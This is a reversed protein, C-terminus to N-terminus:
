MPTDKNTKEEYNNNLCRGTSKSHVLTVLNEDNVSQPGIVLHSFKRSSGAWWGARTNVLTFIVNSSTQYTWQIMRRIWTLSLCTVDASLALRKPHCSTCDVLLVAISRDRHLSDIALNCLAIQV